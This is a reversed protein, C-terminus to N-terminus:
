LVEYKNYYVLIDKFKLPERTIILEAKDTKLEKRFFSYKIYTPVSIRFIYCKGSEKIKCEDLIQYLLVNQFLYYKKPRGRKNKQSLYNQYQNNDLAFYYYGDWPIQKKKYLVRIKVGLKRIYYSFHELSQSKISGIYLWFDNSSIIVDGGYSNYLYLVRWCYNLIRKIDSLSMFPFEQHVEELYDKCYKDTKGDGYNMGENTYKDILDRYYPKLYVYKYRPTRKGLLSLEIQCGTFNSSLIDVNRWKGKQRKRKFEDGKVRKMKLCSKVKGTLPLWYTINNHIIDEIVLKLQYRFIRGLIFKRHRDKTLKECDISSFSLKKYPFNLLIDSLNFACGLAYRQIM